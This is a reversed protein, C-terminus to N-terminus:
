GPTVDSRVVCFENGDPDALVVFNPEAPYHEWRLRVAGLAIVRQVEADMDKTYLDLHVRNVHDKPTDWLQLGLEVWRRGPDVLLSFEPSADKVVFDLASTWFRTAREMDSVNVVVSGLYLPM